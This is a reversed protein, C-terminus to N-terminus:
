CGHAAVCITFIPKSIDTSAESVVCFLGLSSMSTAAPCERHVDAPSLDQIAQWNDSALDRLAILPEALPGSGGAALNSKMCLM